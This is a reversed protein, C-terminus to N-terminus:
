PQDSYRLWQEVKSRPFRMTIEGRAYSAIEYPNYILVVENALIAINQPLSFTDNSFFFGTSNINEGAPIDFEKRFRSEAFEKFATYDSFLDKNNLREGSDREFTIFNIAGYGHAGGTFIYYNTKVVILSDSTSLIKDSIRLEYQESLGPYQDRFRKFESIFNRVAGHLSSITDEPSTSLLLAHHQNLAKNIRQSVKKDGNVKLMKIDIVPCPSTDCSTFDEATMKANTFNLSVLNEEQNDERCSIFCFLFVVPLFHKKM